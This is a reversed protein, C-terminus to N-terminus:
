GGQWKGSRTDGARMQNGRGGASFENGHVRPMENRLALDAFRHVFAGKIVELARALREIEVFIRELVGRVAHSVAQQFVVSERRRPDFLRLLNIGFEVAQSSFPVNRRIIKTAAHNRQIASYQREIHLRGRGANV